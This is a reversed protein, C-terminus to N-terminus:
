GAWPQSTAALLGEIAEGALKPDVGELAAMEENTLSFGTERVTGHPDAFLRKRFEEDLIARGILREVDERSM